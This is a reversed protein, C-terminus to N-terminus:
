LYVLPDLYAAPPAVPITVVAGSKCTYQKFSIAEALYVSLHLHPGTAYGTRGSFGIVQGAAVATGKQVGIDSLHAYLTALGNQHKILVWKGYQCNPAAGHYVGVVTGSLAARVPTGVFARFDVGNHTGSVYLRQSSSTKGFQQTISIISLPWRLIGKGAPPIRSADFAYQLQSELEFITAEFSAEEAKKLAVIKQYASEQNKTDALLKQQEVKQIDISKKQVSLDNQLSVLKQKEKTVEDRNTALTTRTARLRNINETLAENFQIIHDTAQWAEGFTRSSILKTVLSNQENEAVGRLAKRLAAQDSSISAEKDGISLSLEKIKLNASAIKNQTVKIQAALQKQSLTLSNITSQLTDKKTGLTDLQGQIAAIESRLSDLQRNNASIQSQIDSAADALAMSPVGLISGAVFIFFLLPFGFRMM